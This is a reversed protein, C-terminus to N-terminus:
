IYTNLFNFYINSNNLYMLFNLILQKFIDIFNNNNLLEIAENILVNSYNLFKFFQELEKDTYKKSQIFKFLSYYLNIIYNFENNLYVNAINAETGLDNFFTELNTINLFLFKLKTTSIIIDVYDDNIIIFNKYKNLEKLYVLLDSLSFNTNNLFNNYENMILYELQLIKLQEEKPIQNFKNYSTVDFLPVNEIFVRVAFMNKILSLDKYYVNFHNKINIQQMHNNLEKNTYNNNLLFIETNFEDITIKNFVIEEPYATRNNMNNLSTAMCEAYNKDRTPLLFSSENFDNYSFVGQYLETLIREFAIEFIPSSGLNIHWKHTFKNVIVSMLVPVQFNYSLDYIYLDNNIKIKSIINKLYDSLNLSNLNLEYFIDPTNNYLQESVYHEYCESLGQTLAEELTNGAAWGDSGSIINMLYDNFYKIEVNNNFNKYPVTLVKLDQQKPTILAITKLLYNEPDNFKNFFEQYKLCCNKVEDFSEFKENEALYYGNKQFNLEQYKKRDFFDLNFSSVGACFREYLESYGSALAYIESAGKGNTELNSRSNYYLVIHCWYTGAESCARIEEELEFGNSIFFDKIIQITEEPSRDKYKHALDTKLNTNM